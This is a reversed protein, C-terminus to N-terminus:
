QIELFCYVYIEEVICFGHFADEIGFICLIYFYLALNQQPITHTKDPHFVAIGKITIFQKPVPAARDVLEICVLRNLDAGFGLDDVADSKFGALIKFVLKNFINGVANQFHRGGFKGISFGPM